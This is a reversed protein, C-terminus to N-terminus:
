LFGVECLDMDDLKLGAKELANKVAPVPGIGMINPDCGSVHYSVVRALPTLNHKKCAEESALIVASAGDCIGQLFPYTTM